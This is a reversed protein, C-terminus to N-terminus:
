KRDASGIAVALAILSIGSTLFNLGVLLGLTWAKTGPWGSLIMLGLLLAALGSFVMWGWQPMAERLRLAFLISVVGEVLFAAILIFTLTAVGDQPFILFTAGIVLIMAFTVATFLWESLPRMSLAFGIGVAGWVLLLGAVLQEVALTAWIPLVIAMFGLIIFIGGVLILNHPSGGPTHDRKRIPDPLM